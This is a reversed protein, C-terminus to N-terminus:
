PDTRRAAARSSAKRTVPQQPRPEPLHKSAERFTLGSCAAGHAELFARVRDPRKKSTERLVWGIAKRIWFSSEPLMPVAIETFLEFDGEGRRLGPLLVLLATRRTWVDPDRAWARVRAAARPGEGLPVPMVNAALWDVHAWCAAERVLTILWDVDAERLTKAKRELLGIAAGRLDFSGAGFLHEAIARLASADLEPHAKAFDRCSARLVANTIGHFALESKMYKKQAAASSADGEAEFRARFHREALLTISSPETVKAGRRELAM